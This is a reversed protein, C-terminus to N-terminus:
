DTNKNRPAGGLILRRMLHNWGCAVCVEVVYGVSTSVRKNLREIEDSASICRGHRPLRPGFVYTVEVLRSSVGGDRCVSCSRRTRTGCHHANRLLEYQADCIQSRALEGARWARLTANRALRYDVVAPAAPDATPPGALEFLGPKVASVTIVLGCENSLWRRRCGWAPPAM